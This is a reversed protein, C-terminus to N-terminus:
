CLESRTLRGALQGNFDGVLNAVCADAQMHLARRPGHCAAIVLRQPREPQGAALERKSIDSLRAQAGLM